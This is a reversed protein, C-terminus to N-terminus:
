VLLYLWRTIECFYISNMRRFTEDCKRRSTSKVHFTSFKTSVNIHHLVPVCITPFNSDRKFFCIFFDSTGSIIYFDLRNCLRIVHSVLLFKDFNYLSKIFLIYLKLLYVTLKSSKYLLIDFFPWKEVKKRVIFKLIESPLFGNSANIHFTFTFRLSRFNFFILAFIFFHWGFKGM